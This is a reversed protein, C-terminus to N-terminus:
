RRMGEPAVSCSRLQRGHHGRRGRREHSRQREHRVAAVIPRDRGNGRGDLRDGTSAGLDPADREAYPEKQIMGDRSTPSSSSRRRGGGPDGAVEGPHRDRADNGVRVHLRRAQQDVAGHESAEELDLDGLRALTAPVKGACRFQPLSPTTIPAMMTAAVRCVAGAATTFPVVPRCTDDM